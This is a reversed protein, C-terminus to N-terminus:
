DWNTVFVWFKNNLKLIAASLSPSRKKLTYSTNKQGRADLDMTPNQNSSFVYHVIDNVLVEISISNERYKISWDSFRIERQVEGQKM